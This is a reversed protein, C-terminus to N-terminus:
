SDVKSINYLIDVASNMVSSFVGKALQGEVIGIFSDVVGMNCLQLCTEPDENTLNLLSDSFDLSKVARQFYGDLKKFKKDGFNM